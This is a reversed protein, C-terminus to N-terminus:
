KTHKKIVERTTGNGMIDKNVVTTIAEPNRAALDAFSKADVAQININYSDGGGGQGSLLAQTDRRNLVLEGTQAKIIREDPRLGVVGGTHYSQLGNTTILGGDHATILSSVFDGILGGDGEGEGLLADIMPQVVGKKIIMKELQLLINRFVDKLSEGKAIAESLGDVLNNKFLQFKNKAQDINYGLDIFYNELWNTQSTSQGNNGMKKIEKNILELIQKNNKYKVALDELKTITAKVRKSESDYRDKVQTKIEAIDEKAIQKLMNSKIRKLQMWRDSYKKEAALQQDLIDIYQKKTIERQDLKFNAIKLERQKEKQLQRQERQEKRKDLKEKESQYWKEIKVKDAGQEEYRKKKQKLLYLEYDYWQKNNKKIEKTLQRNINAIQEATAGQEKETLNLYEKKLSARTQLSLKENKSQEKLWKTYKEKSMKSLTVLAQAQQRAEQTLQDMNKKTDDTIEQNTEKSKKVLYDLELKFQAKTTASWKDNKLQEQLFSKYKKESIDGITMKARMKRMKDLIEREAERTEQQEEFENIKSEIKKAKARLKQLKKSNPHAKSAVRSGLISDSQQDELRKIEN